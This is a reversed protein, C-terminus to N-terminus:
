TREYSKELYERARVPDIRKQPTIVKAIELFDDASKIYAVKNKPEFEIIIRQTESLKLFERVEKPLTIQGKKTVTSHYTM